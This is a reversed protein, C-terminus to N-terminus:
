GGGGGGGVKARNMGALTGCGSELFSTKCVHLMFIRLFLDITETM